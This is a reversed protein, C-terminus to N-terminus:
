ISLCCLSHGLTLGVPIAAGSGQQGSKLAFTLPGQIVPLSNIPNTSLSSSAKFGSLSHISSLHSSTETSIVTNTPASNSRMFSPKTLIDYNQLWLPASTLAIISSIPSISMTSSPCPFSCKSNCYPQLSLWPAPSPSSTLATALSPQINVSLSYCALPFSFCFFWIALFPPLLHVALVTLEPASRM